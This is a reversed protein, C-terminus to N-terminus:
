GRPDYSSASVNPALAFMRGGSTFIGPISSQRSERDRATRAHHRMSHAIYPHKHSCIPSPTFNLVERSPPGGARRCPMDDDRRHRGTRRTCSWTGACSNTTMGSGSTCQLCMHVAPLRAVLPLSWCLDQDGEQRRQGTSSNGVPEAVPPPAMAQLRDRTVRRQGCARGTPRTERVRGRPTVGQRAHDREKTPPM